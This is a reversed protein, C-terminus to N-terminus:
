DIKRAVKVTNDLVISEGDRKRWVYVFRMRDCTDSKSQWVCFATNRCNTTVFSFIKDSSKISYFVQIRAVDLKEAACLRRM